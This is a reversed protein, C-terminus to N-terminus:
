AEFGTEIFQDRIVELQDLARGCGLAVCSMPDEAVHVPIRTQKSLLKDFGRILSVGGTLMIGREIIDSSLEPPTQELVSKVRDVIAM